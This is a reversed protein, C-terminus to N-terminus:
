LIWTNRGPTLPKSFVQAHIEKWQSEKLDCWAAWVEYWASFLQEGLCSCSAEERPDM